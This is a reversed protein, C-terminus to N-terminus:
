LGLATILEDKNFGVIVDKGVCITPFSVKPNLKKIEEVTNKREDGQLQDVHVCEYSIHKEDLFAKANKCHICTTLAYVKVSPSM